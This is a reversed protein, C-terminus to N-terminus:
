ITKILERLYNIRIQATEIEQSMPKWWFTNGTWYKGTIYKTFQKDDPKNEKLFERTKQREDITIIGIHCLRSIHSCIGAAYICDVTKAKDLSIQDIALNLIEILRNNNM